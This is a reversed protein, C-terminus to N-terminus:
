LMKKFNITYDNRKKYSFFIVFVVVIILIIGKLRNKYRINNIVILKLVKLNEFIINEIIKLINIFFFNM